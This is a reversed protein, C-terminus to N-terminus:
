YTHCNKGIMKYLPCYGWFATFFMPISFLMFIISWVPSLINNLAVFWFFLGILVRLVREFSSMNIVAKSKPTKKSTFVIWDISHRGGGFVVIVMYIALYLLALEKTSFAQGMHALFTAVTMNVILVIAAFRTLFGSILLFSCVVEAFISLSLSATHGIGLPDPFVRALSYFDAIKVFGHTLMVFGIFVRLFFIVISRQDERAPLDWLWFEKM